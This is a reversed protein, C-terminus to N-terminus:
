AISRSGALEFGCGGLWRGCQNKKKSPAPTNAALATTISPHRRGPHHARPEDYGVNKEEWCILLSDEKWCLFERWRGAFGGGFLWSIRRGAIMGDLGGINWLLDMEAQLLEIGLGTKGGM